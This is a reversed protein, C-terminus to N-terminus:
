TLNELLVVIDDLLRPLYNGEYFHEYLSNNHWLLNCTNGYKLARSIKQFALTKAEDYSLGMKESLTVDMLTLPIITVDLPREKEFSWMKFPRSIAGRFLTNGAFGFSFDSKVHNTELMEMDNPYCCNLYHFRVSRPNHKFYANFKSIQNIVLDINYRSNYELHLGFELHKNASVFQSFSPMSLDNPSDYAKSSSGLQIFAIYKTEYKHSVSKIIPFHQNLMFNHKLDGAGWLLSAPERKLLLWRANCLHKLLRFATKPIGLYRWLNIFDLDHTVFVTKKQSDAVGLLARIQHCLVDVVPFELYRLIRPPIAAPHIRNHEDLCAKDEIYRENAFFHILKLCSIRRKFLPIDYELDIDHILSDLSVFETETIIPAYFDFADERYVEGNHSIEFASEKIAIGINDGRSIGAVDHLLYAINEYSLM